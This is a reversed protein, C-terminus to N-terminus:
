QISKNMPDTAILRRSVHLKFAIRNLLFPLYKDHKADTMKVFCCWDHEYNKNYLGGGPNYKWATSPDIHRYTNGVEIQITVKEADSLLDKKALIEYQAEYESFHEAKIKEQLSIDIVPNNPAKKCLDAYIKEDLETNGAPTEGDATVPPKVDEEDDDAKALSAAKSNKICHICFWKDALKCPEIM